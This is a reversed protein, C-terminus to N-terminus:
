ASAAINRLREIVREALGDLRRAAYSPIACRVLHGVSDHDLLWRAQQAVFARLEPPSAGVERAIAPRSAVLTIADDLEASDLASEGNARFEAFALALLAPAASIRAVLGGDLEVAVTLLSAYELWIAGADGDDGSVYTVDLIVDPELSWQDSTATRAGRRFGLRQLDGGIRDLTSSSLVRLVADESFM